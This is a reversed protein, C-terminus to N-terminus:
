KRFSRFKRPCIPPRSRRPRRRWSERRRWGSPRHKRRAIRHLDCFLRRSRRGDPIRPRIQSRIQDKCLTREKCPTWAGRFLSATIQSEKVPLRRRRPFVDQPCPFHPREQLRHTRLHRFEWLTGLGSALQREPNQSWCPLPRFRFKANRRLPLHRDARLLGPWGLRCHDKKKALDLTVSTAGSATKPASSKHNLLSTM